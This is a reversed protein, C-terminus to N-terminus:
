AFEYIIGEFLPWVPLPAAMPTRALVQEQPPVDTLEVLAFLALVALPTQPCAGEPFKSFDLRRLAMEQTRAHSKTCPASLFSSISDPINIFCRSKLVFVLEYKQSFLSPPSVGGGRRKRSHWPRQAWLYRIYVLHHMEWYFQLWSYELPKGCKLLHRGYQLKGSVYLCKFVVTVKM